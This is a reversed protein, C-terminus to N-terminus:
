QLTEKVSGCKLMSDGFYPNRIEKENSLWFAGEDNNAMPCYALFISGSTLKGAKLISTMENSLVSFVKRQAVLDSSSSIKDAEDAAKKGNAVDSLSKKLAIAMNKAVDTKSAVLAEKLQIYHEYAAGIKADGFTPKGNEQVHGAHSSHDHQAYAAFGIMVIMMTMMQKKM